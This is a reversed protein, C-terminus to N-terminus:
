SGIVHTTSRTPSEFLSFTGKGVITNMVRVDSQTSTQNSTAKHYFASYAVAGESWTIKRTSAIIANCFTKHYDFLREVGKGVLCSSFVLCKGKLLPWAITDFEEWTLFTGDTLEFGNDAGHCSFHVYRISENEAKKLAKKLHELDIVEFYASRVGELQLIDKLIRGEHRGDYHDSPSRSEIILVETVSM